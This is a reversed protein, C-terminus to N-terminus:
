LSLLRVSYVLSEHNQDRHYSKTRAQSSLERAVCVGTMFRGKNQTVSDIKYYQNLAASDVQGDVNPQRSQRRLVAGFSGCAANEFVQLHQGALTEQGPPHKGSRRVRTHESRLM